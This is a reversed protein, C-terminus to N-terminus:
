TNDAMNGSIFTSYWKYYCDGMGPRGTTKVGARPLVFSFVLFCRWCNDNAIRGFFDNIKKLM